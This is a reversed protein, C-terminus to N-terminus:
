HVIALCFGKVLSKVHYTQPDFTADVLLGVLWAIIM